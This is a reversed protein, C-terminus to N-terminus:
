VSLKAIINEKYNDIAIRIHEDITRHLKSQRHQKYQNITKFDKDCCVFNTIKKSGCPNKKNQHRILKSKYYFEKNCIKCITDSM